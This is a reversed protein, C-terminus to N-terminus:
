WLHGGLTIRWTLTLGRTWCNRWLRQMGRFCRVDFVAASELSLFARHKDIVQRLPDDIVMDPICLPIVIINALIVALFIIRWPCSCLLYITQSVSCCQLSESQKTGKNFSHAPADRGQSEEKFSGPERITVTPLISVKPCTPKRM